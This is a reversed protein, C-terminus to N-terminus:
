PRAAKRKRWERVEGAKVRWTRGDGVLSVELVTEAGPRPGKRFGDGFWELAESAAEMLTEGATVHGFIGREADRFYVCAPRSV